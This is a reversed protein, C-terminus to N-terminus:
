LSTGRIQKIVTDINASKGAPVFEKLFGYSETGQPRLRAQVCTRNGDHPFFLAGAQPTPLRRNSDPRDRWQKESNKM